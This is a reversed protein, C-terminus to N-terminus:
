ARVVNAAQFGKPGKLLDFEVTEGENLTRYGNEQIASFHVFVDEGTSRQIFGYGKAGNFWKVTGKERVSLAGKVLRSSHNEAERIARKSRSFGGKPSSPLIETADAVTCPSIVELISFVGCDGDAPAPEAPFKPTRCNPANGGCRVFTLWKSTEGGSWDGTILLLDYATNFRKALFILVSESHSRHDYESLNLATLSNVRCRTDFSGHRSPGSFGPITRSRNTKRTARGGMGVSGVGLSRAGALPARRVRGLERPSTSEM